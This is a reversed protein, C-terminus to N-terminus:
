YIEWCFSLALFCFCFLTFIYILRISIMIIIIIMINHSGEASTHTNRTAPTHTQRKRCTDSPKGTPTNGTAPVSTLVKVLQYSTALQHTSAPLDQSNTSPSTNKSSYRSRVRCSLPAIKPLSYRVLEQCNM